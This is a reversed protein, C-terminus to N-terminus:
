KIKANTMLRDGFEETTEYKRLYLAAMERCDLTRTYGLEKLTELNEKLNDYIEETAAYLEFEKVVLDFTIKSPEFNVMKVLKETEEGM